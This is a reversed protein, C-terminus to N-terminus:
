SCRGLLLLAYAIGIRAGTLHGMILLVITLFYIRQPCMLLPREEVDESYVMRAQKGVAVSFSREIWFHQASAEAFVFV